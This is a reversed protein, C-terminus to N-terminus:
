EKKAKRRENRLEDATTGAIKELLLVVDDIRFYWLVVARLFMFLTAFVAIGGLVWVVLSEMGSM